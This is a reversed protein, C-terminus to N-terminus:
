FPFVGGAEHIFGGSKYLEKLGKELSSNEPLSDLDVESLASVAKMFVFNFVDLGGCLVPFKNFRNQFSIINSTPKLLAKLEPSLLWSICMFAKFDIEPYLKKFFIKGEDLSRQINEQNFDGDRPIHVSVYDDGPACLLSWESKLLKTKEKSIRGTENIAENGEYYEDTETYKTKFSGEEDKAGASGLILGSKHVSIGEVMLIKIAEDKNIFARMELSCNRRLEFNFRGITFLDANKQTTTWLFYLTSFTPRGTNKSSSIISGGVGRYTIKLIEEDVGKEKLTFFAQRVRALMPFFSFLDYPLPNEGEPAKPFELGGFVESHHKQIELMGYLTRAFLVLDSNERVLPLAPLVIDLIEENIYCDSVAKKVYAETLWEPMDTDNLAKEYYIDFLDSINDLNLRKLLDNM